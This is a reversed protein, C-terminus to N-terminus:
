SSLVLDERQEGAQAGNGETLSHTLSHSHFHTVYHTLSHTVYLSHTLTLSHIPYTYVVHLIDLYMYERQICFLM